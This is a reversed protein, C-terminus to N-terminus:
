ADNEKLQEIQRFFHFFVLSLHHCVPCDILSAVTIFLLSNNEFQLMCFNQKQLSFNCEFM